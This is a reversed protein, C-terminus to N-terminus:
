VMPRRARHGLRRPRGADDIQRFRVIGGAAGGPIPM